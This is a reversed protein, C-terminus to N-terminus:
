LVGKTSPIEGCLRPDPTVAARLSRGVSKFAAEIIHHTNRGALKNIHLTIEATRVFANFFEEVLETDFDGVRNSALDLSFGLCSRGSVDVATMVLAEDMPIIANGYRTIGGRNCAKRFCTGFVIGVDEVTHHYDVEVDGRARIKLDFMSNFTLLRLMHDLFGCGTEIDARGNGDLSLELTINTEGTIRELRAERM